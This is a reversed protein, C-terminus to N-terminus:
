EICLMYNGSGSTSSVTVYYGSRFSSSVSETSDANTSSGVPRWTGRFNRYLTLDFNTGADGVMSASIGNFFFAGSSSPLDM